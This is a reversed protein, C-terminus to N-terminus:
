HGEDGSPEQRREDTGLSARSTSMVAKSLSAIGKELDHFQEVRLTIGKRTPKAKGQGTPPLLYCRIDLCNRGKYEELTFRVEETANKQFKHVVNGM